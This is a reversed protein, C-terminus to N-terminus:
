RSSFPNMNLWVYVLLLVSYYNGGVRLKTTTQSEHCAMPLAHESRWRSYRM